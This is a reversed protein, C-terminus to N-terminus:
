KSAAATSLDPSAQQTLASREELQQAENTIRTVDGLVARSLANLRAAEDHLGLQLLASSEDRLAALADALSPASRLEELLSSLVARRLEAQLKLDERSSASL